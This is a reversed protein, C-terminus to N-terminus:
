LYTRDKKNRPPPLHKGFRRYVVDFPEVAYAAFFASRQPHAPTPRSLRPNAAIAQEVTISVKEMPLQDFVHSGHPTNVMLMSMGAEQQPHGDGLNGFEGLSFDGVRTMSTYPCTHCSPRLFLGQAYGRGFPTAYLPASDLRGNEYRVTFHRNHWGTIKEKFHVSEVPSKAKSAMLAVTSAWVTSSPVGHCILDCTTLNTPRTGLYQYLGDVQCPTGLFLVFRTDLYQKIQAYVGTVDSEVLKFGQFQACDQLTFAATHRLRMKQDFAARFVVGGREITHQALLHFVGGASSTKRVSADANWAGYVVPVQVPRPGRLAPCLNICQRCASCRTSDVKPYSFGESDRVMTIAHQQCAAACATCGTCQNRPALQPGPRGPASVGQPLPRNYLAAHLYDSSAQRASSLNSEVGNWDVKELLDATYGTGVIRHTLGLVNLLSFTRSREPTAMESPAVSSFFPKQFQTAFVTGHFSNTCVYSANQFLGLFEQPGADLVCKAKPHVKQRVGCLQIVPLGTEEALRLIYPALAGVKIICYCLIYGQKKKPPNALQGWQERTLLLTPDLVVPVQQGTVEKVIAAGQRERCSIHSFAELYDKLEGQMETPIKPIGFSPAYAIKRKDSFNGFFVGDFHKDPFILPNWLQDSGALVVDIDPANAALDEKSTYRRDTRKLYTAKTQEFRQQRRRLPAYNAATHANAAASGIGTTKRFLAISQNVHYDILTCEGGLQEVAKQTAYAQLFAGYHHIHYFTVLGAKM